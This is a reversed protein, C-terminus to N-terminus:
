RHHRADMLSSGPRRERWRAAFSLQPPAVFHRVTPESKDQLCDLVNDRTAADAVTWRAGQRLCEEWSPVVYTEIFRHPRDADEYVSWSTAGTRRRARGLWRIHQLFEDQKEPRVQYAVVVLVPASADDIPLHTEPAAM